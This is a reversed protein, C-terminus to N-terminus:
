RKGMFQKVSSVFVEKAEEGTLETIDVVLDACDYLAQRGPSYEAIEFQEYTRSSWHGGPRARARAFVRRPRDSVLIVTSRSRLFDEFATAEYCGAGVDVVTDTAPRKEELLIRNQCVQWFEPWRDGAHCFLVPDEACVVADLDLVSLRPCAEGLAAIVSTKGVGSPGIVFYVM